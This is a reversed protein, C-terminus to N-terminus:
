QHKDSCFILSSLNTKMKPFLIEPIVLDIFIGFANFAGFPKTRIMTSSLFFFSFVPSTPPSSLAFNYAAS